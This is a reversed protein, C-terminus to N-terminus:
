RKKDYIDISNSVAIAKGGSNLYRIIISYLIYNVLRFLM